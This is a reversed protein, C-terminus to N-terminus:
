PVGSDGLAWIVLQSSAPAGYDRAAVPQVRVKSNIIACFQAKDASDFMAASMMTTLCSTAEVHGVYGSASLVELVMEKARSTSLGGSQASVNVYDVLQRLADGLMAAPQPRALFALGLAFHFDVFGVFLVLPFSAVEACQAPGCSFFGSAM